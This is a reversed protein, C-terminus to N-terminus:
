LDRARSRDQGGWVAVAVEGLLEPMEGEVKMGSLVRRMLTKKAVMYGVKEQTLKRRLATTDGIPLGHFNVFVVSVSM